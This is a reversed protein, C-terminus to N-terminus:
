IYIIEPDTNAQKDDMPMRYVLLYKATQLATFIIEHYGILTVLILNNCHFNKFIDITNQFNFM